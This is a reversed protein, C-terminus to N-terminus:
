VADVPFETIKDLAYKQVLAADLVDVAGNGNVDAARAQEETLEAMEAAAKQIFAADLIDVRGDGNADGTQYAGGQSDDAILLYNVDTPITYEDDKPEPLVLTITGNNVERSAESFNESTSASYADYEKVTAEISGTFNNFKIYYEQDMPIRFFGGDDTTTFGIWKDSSEVLVGNEIRAISDGAINLIEGDLDEPNATNFYVRRYGNVQDDTLTTYDSFYSDDLRLWSMYVENTHDYMLRAFNSILTAANKMQENNILLPHVQNSQWINGFLLHSLTYTLSNTAEASTLQDIQEQSANAMTMAYEVVDGLYHAAIPRIEDADMLLYKGLKLVLSAIQKADAGVPESGDKSEGQAKSFLAVFEQVKATIEEKTAIIENKYKQKMFYAYMAIGMDLTEPSSIFGKGFASSEDGNLSCYYGIFDSLAQEYNEAYGQRGGSIQTLYTGLGKLYIAADNPIYSNKDDVLGISGDTFGIKAPVFNESSTTEVFEEYIGPNCIELNALMQDYKEDDKIMTDSGYREFGIEVPAMVSPLESDQYINFIGSYKEDRPAQASDAAMPTGFTYAYLNEPELTIADGLVANPDDILKKATLNTIAAGRSYGVTWVKIDGSIGNNEIYGRAFELCKDSSKNFGKADGESGIVFNDGWEMEYGASRPVIAIMTYEKGDQVIKKHACAVGITDKTPKITYDNNIEIDSFGIDDLFAIVDRNKLAYGEPTFPERTSSASAEALSMSLTSLHADYEKGSKRFYDDSYAYYDISDSLGYIEGESPRYYFSGYYFSSDSAAEDTDAFAAMTAVPILLAVALLAAVAKTFLKKM